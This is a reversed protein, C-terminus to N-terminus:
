SAKWSEGTDLVVRIFRCVKMGGNEVVVMINYVLKFAIKGLLKFGKKGISM